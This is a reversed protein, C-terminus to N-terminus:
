SFVRRFNAEGSKSFVVTRSKRERAAWKLDTIRDFLAAGLSGALHSRRQSWDLCSKCLPRRSEGLVELDIGFERCFGEGKKTLRVSEGRAAIHGKRTLHDFMQVALEGALHDYCVRAHRMAPDSPGPRTRLHGARAAVGMITELMRAVDPDALRFYRHRGQKVGAILGGSELKALHSSATQVTVGAENALESATLAKGALLASLMNARAPDGALAAVPAISPGEKM